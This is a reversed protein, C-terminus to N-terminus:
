RRMREIAREITKTSVGNKQAADSKALEKRGTRALAAHYDAAQKTWRARKEEPTGHTHEHGKKGSSVSKEGRETHPLNEEKERQLTSSDLQRLANAERQLGWRDRALDDARHLTEALDALLDGVVAGWEPEDPTALSGAVEARCHLALALASAVARAYRPSESPGDVFRELAAVDGPTDFATAPWGTVAVLAGRAMDALDALVVLLVGPRIPAGTIEAIKIEEAVFAQANESLCVDWQTRDGEIM